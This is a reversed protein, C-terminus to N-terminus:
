QRTRPISSAIRARGARAERDPNTPLMAIRVAAALTTPEVPAEGYRMVRPARDAYPLAFQVRESRGGTRVYALGPADDAIGAAAAIGTVELSDAASATRLAIGTAMGARLTPTLVATPRHTTLVLHMRGQGAHHALAELRGTVARGGPGLAALDDVVIVTLPARMDLSDVVRLAEEQGIHSAARTVHPLELYAELVGPTGACLIVLSLESPTNKLALAGLITALLTTKGSGPAGAILTHPLCPDLTLSWPATPNDAHVGAVVTRHPSSQAPRADLAAADAWHITRPAPEPGCAARSRALIDATAANVRVVPAVFTVGDVCGTTRVSEATLVTWGHTDSRPPAGSIHIPGDSALAPPLWSLWPEDLHHPLPPRRGRALIVARALERAYPGGIEIAGLWGRTQTPDLFAVPAPPGTIRLLNGRESVTQLLLSGAMRMAGSVHGMIRGHPSLRRRAVPAASGAFSAFSATNANDSVAPDAPLGQRAELLSRGIALVDGARLTATRRSGDWVLREGRRRWIGTGNVTGNDRVRLSGHPTPSVTVHHADVADDRLLAVVHPTEVLHAVARLPVAGVSPDRGIVTTRDIAIIVGADPGSITALYRGAPAVSARRPHASLMAGALLPWSGAPHSPTLVENGCWIQESPFGAVIQHLPTGVLAELDTNGEPSLSHHITLRM